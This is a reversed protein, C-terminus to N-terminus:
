QLGFHETHMREIKNQAAKMLSRVMEMQSFKITNPIRHCTEM